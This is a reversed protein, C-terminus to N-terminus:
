CLSTRHLLAGYRIRASADVNSDTGGRFRSAPEDVVARVREVGHKGVGVLGGRPFDFQRGERSLRVGRPILAPKGRGAAEELLVALAGCPRATDLMGGHALGGLPGYDREEAPGPLGPGRRGASALGTV